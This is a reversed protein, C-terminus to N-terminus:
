QLKFIIKSIVIFRYIGNNKMYFKVSVYFELVICSISSLITLTSANKAQSMHVVNNLIDYVIM